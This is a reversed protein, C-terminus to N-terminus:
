RPFSNTRSYHHVVAPKNTIVVVNTITVSAPQINTYGAYKAGCVIYWPGTLVSKDEVQDAKFLKTPDLKVGYVFAPADSPTVFQIEQGAPVSVKQDVTFPIKGEWTCGSLASVLVVVLLSVFMRIRM